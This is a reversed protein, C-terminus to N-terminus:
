PRAQLALSSQLEATAKGASLYARRVVNGDTPFDNVSIRALRDDPALKDLAPAPPIGSGPVGPLQPMFITVLNDAPVLVRNLQELESGDRPEPLDRYLDM